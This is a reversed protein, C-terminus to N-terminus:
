PITVTTPIAIAILMGQEFNTPTFSITYNALTDKQWYNPTVGSSEFSLIGPDENTVILGTTQAEITYGQSTLLKFQVSTDIPRLSIANNVDTINM